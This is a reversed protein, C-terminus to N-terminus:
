TSKVAEFYRDLTSNFRSLDPIEFQKHVVIEIQAPELRNNKIQGQLGLVQAPEVGNKALVNPNKPFQGSVDTPFFSFTRPATGAGSRTAVSNEGGQKGGKKNGSFTSPSM